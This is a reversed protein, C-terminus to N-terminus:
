AEGLSRRRWSPLTSLGLRGRLGVFLAANWITFCSAQGIAAGMAGWHPVLIACLAVNAVTALLHARVALDENHTSVAVLTTAGFLNNALQGMTLVVLLPYGAAYADGYALPILWQGGAIYVAALPLATLTAVACVRSATAQLDARDDDTHAQSLRHGYLSNSVVLGFAMLASLQQMIRFVAVDAQAGFWGLVLVGLSVNLAMLWGIAANRLLSTGFDSWRPTVREGRGSVAGLAIREIIWAVIAGAVTAALMIAMAVEARSAVRVVGFVALALLLLQVGPRVLSEVVQARLPWGLGRVVAQRVTSTSIALMVPAALWYLAREDAPAGWTGWAAVVGAAAVAGGAIVREALRATGRLQAWEARTRLAAVDRVTQNVIGAQVFTLLLLAWALAEFYRGLEDPAVFRALLLSVLFGSATYLGRLGFGILEALKIKM